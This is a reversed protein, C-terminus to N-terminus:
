PARIPKLESETARLQRELASVDAGTCADGRLSRSSGHDVRLSALERDRFAIAAYEAGTGPGAIRGVGHGAALIRGRSCVCSSPAYLEGLDVHLQSKAREIRNHAKKEECITASNSVIL